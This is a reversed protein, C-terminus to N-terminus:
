ARGDPVMEGGCNDCESEPTVPIMSPQPWGCDECHWSRRGLHDCDDPQSFQWHEVGEDDTIFPM